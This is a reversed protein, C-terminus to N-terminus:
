GRGGLARRVADHRQAQGLWWHQRGSRPSIRRVDATRRIRSGLAEAALVAAGVASHDRVGADILVERGTADALDQGLVPHAAAGGGLLIPGRTATCETLVGVCRALELIVGTLLGRAVHGAGMGLRLGHITGTLAPDWLAGQEGPSLYPLFIPADEVAQGAAADLLAPPGPMGLMAAIGAFASGVALVDMELGWRTSATPTVLYRRAPDRVPADSIGLVIASTGAIVAVDGDGTAGLGVAGLVSDAAGLVVPLEAPLGWRRSWRPLLPRWTASPSVEPLGPLNAAAVLAPDWAGRDLDFVGFGAATSPDTRLEGTLQAFLVDKAGAVIQADQGLERLRGYMPALYRGDLRQGTLRYIRDDGVAACFRQAQPEARADEWTVALGVCGGTRDARVLTPLMASLGIGRWCASAVGTVLDGVARDLALWWDQPDQEAADPEPRATPYDARTSALVAGDAAVAVAKLSSTGLDVGVYVPDTM